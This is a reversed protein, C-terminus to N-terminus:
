DVVKAGCKACWGTPKSDAAYDAMWGCVDCKCTMYGNADPEEWIPVMRCTREARANWAAEADDKSLRSISIECSECGVCYWTICRTDIWGLSTPDFVDQDDEYEWANAGGGCFPCPKLEMNTM